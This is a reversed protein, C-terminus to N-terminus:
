LALDIPFLPEAGLVVMFQSFGTGLHNINNYSFKAMSLHNAWNTQDVNM